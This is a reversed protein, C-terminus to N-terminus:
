GSDPFGYLHRWHQLPDCHKQGLTKKDTTWSCQKHTRDVTGGTEETKGECGGALWVYYDGFSKSSVWGQTFHYSLTSVWGIQQWLCRIWSVYGNSSSFPDRQKPSRLWLMKMWCCVTLWSWSSSKACHQVWIEPNVSLLRKLHCLLDFNCQTCHRSQWM